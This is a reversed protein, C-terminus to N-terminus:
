ALQMYEEILMEESGLNLSSILSVLKNTVKKMGLKEHKDDM